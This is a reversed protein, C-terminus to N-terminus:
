GWWHEPWKFQLTDLVHQREDGEIWEIAFVTQAYPETETIEVLEKRALAALLFKYGEGVCLEDDPLEGGGIEALDAATDWEVYLHAADEKGLYGFYHPHKRRDRRRSPRDSARDFAVRGCGVVRGNRLVRFVLPNDKPIEM